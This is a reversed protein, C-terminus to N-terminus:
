SKQWVVAEDGSLDIATGYKQSLAAIHEMAEREENVSRIITEYLQGHRVPSCTVKVIKRDELTVRIMLGIWGSLEIGPHGLRFYFNGLTYLIPKDKYIEIGLPAHHGHGVVIDAGSDIAAHALEVQYQLVDDRYGWHHSSIVVDVQQRLSVIEQKFDALYEPDTWTIITPPAGPRNWDLRPQYATYAKIAAVGTSKEGAEHGVAWYQSTHQLFGFRTGKTEFVAPMHAAKRNIGAGTHLIGLEDLQALSAQIAESGYIVNNACGVVRYGGQTLTPGSASGAYFGEYEDREEGPDYLCTELNGFVVDARRLIEGVRSFPVTTDTIGQLNVDGTLIMTQKM